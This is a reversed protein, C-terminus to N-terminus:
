RVVIVDDDAGADGAEVSGEQGALSKGTPAAGYEDEGLAGNVVAVGAKGLAADGGGDPGVVGGLAVQVVGHSGAGAEDVGLGGADEGLLGGVADVVEYAEADGEVGEV